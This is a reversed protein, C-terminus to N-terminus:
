SPEQLQSSVQPARAAATLPAAPTARAAAAAAEGTCLAQSWTVGARHVPWTVGREKVTVRRARGERASDQQRWLYLYWLMQDKTTAELGTGDRGPNSRCLFLLRHKCYEPIM